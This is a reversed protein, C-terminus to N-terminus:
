FGKTPEQDRLYNTHKMLMKTFVEDMHKDNHKKSLNKEIWVTTQYKEDFDIPKSFGIKDNEEINDWNEDINHIENWLMWNWEHSSYLRHWWENGNHHKIWALFKM